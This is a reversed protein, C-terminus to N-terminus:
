SAFLSLQQKVRDRTISIGLFRTEKNGSKSINVKLIPSANGDLKVNYALKLKKKDTKM